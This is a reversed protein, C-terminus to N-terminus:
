TRASPTGGVTRSRRTRRRPRMGSWHDRGREGQQGFQGAAPRALDIPAGQPLGGPRASRAGCVARPRSRARGARAKASTSPTGGAPAPSSNKPPSQTSATSRATAMSSRNPRRPPSRAAVRPAKAASTPGPGRGARAAPHDPGQRRRRGPQWQEAQGPRSPGRQGPPAQALGPRGVAADLGGRAASGRADAADLRLPGVQQGPVGEAAEDGEVQGQLQLAGSLRHGQQVGRGGTPVPHLVTPADQLPRPVAGTQGPPEGGRGPPGQGAGRPVVRAELEATDGGPPVPRPRM